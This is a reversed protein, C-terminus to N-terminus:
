AEWYHFSGDTEERCYGYEEFYFSRGSVPNLKWYYYPDLKRFEISGLIGLNKDILIAKKL